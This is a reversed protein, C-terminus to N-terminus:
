IELGAVFGPYIRVTTSGDHNVSQPGGLSLDADGGSQGVVVNVGAGAVLAIHPALRIGASLRLSNVGPAKDSVGNKEYVNITSAELDLHEFRGAPVFVRWGVALSPGWRGNDRTFRTDSAGTAIANGPQYGVGFATYLHRGGLKLALNTLMVDTSTVSLAHIGNGILNLVAFSEGDDHAAVNVVGLQFGRTERAVNIVGLRFGGGTEIVNVAGLQGGRLDRAVNVTALQFGRMRRAFTVAGALQLGKMDDAADVAGALQFGRVERAGSVLGALQLGKFSGDVLSAMGALQFGRAEGRAASAIGALQFGDFKGDSYAVDALQFGRSDGQAVTAGIALQLGRLREHTQTWGLGLQFGDVSAAEDGVFGFSFGSIDTKADGARPVIGLRASARTHPSELAAAVVDAPADGRAMALELPKGPHFALRALEARQCDVPRDLRARVAVSLHQN